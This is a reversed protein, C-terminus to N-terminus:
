IQTVIQIDRDDAATAVFRLSVVNANTDTAALNIKYWGNSIETVTNACAAFAAGDLSRTATVTLGTAPAHNTSDTMVFTFAALAQNKKINSTIAVAATVSGVAGTVSAVSGVVNGGVNGTVSGVAGTVSGVSGVVNGGVNGTVSAVAGTVSGVAGTVSAVSGTLNGTFTTTLSSTITTAANTGAIFLGGTAGATANPVATVLLKGISGATTFDSSSTLDQWVATAIAAPTSGTGSPANVLSATTFVSSSTSTFTGGLQSFIIKGPSTLTTFDGATTDTWIATAITANTLGTVSGVAGTVSAPTSANLSTKMTSTFDGATPANTLNTVTTITGATINTPSAVSSPFTVGAAATVTQGALQTTNAPLTDGLINACVQDAFDTPDGSTATVHVALDGLTNTDTTTFAVNYWGNAIETVTGGAAAFAGSNKSITVAPTAGTLASIHDASQVLLFMRNYTTSQKLIAM